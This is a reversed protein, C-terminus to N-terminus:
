VMVQFIDSVVDFNEDHVPFAESFVRLLLEEVALATLTTMTFGRTSCSGIRARNTMHKWIAGKSHKDSRLGLFNEWHRSKYHVKTWHFVKPRVRTQMLVVGMVTNLTNLHAVTDDVVYIEEILSFSPCLSSFYVTLGNTIATTKANEISSAIYCFLEIELM